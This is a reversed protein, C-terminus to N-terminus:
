SATATCAVSFSYANNPVRVILTDYNAATKVCGLIEASIDDGGSVLKYKATWAAATVSGLTKGTAAKVQVAIVSNGSAYYKSATSDYRAGKLDFETYTTGTLGVEIENGSHSVYGTLDSIALASGHVANASVECVLIALDDSVAAGLGDINIAVVGQQNNDDTTYNGDVDQLIGTGLGKNILQIDSEGELKAVDVPSTNDIGRKGMMVLYQTTDNKYLTVDDNWPVSIIWDEWVDFEYDVGELKMRLKESKESAAEVEARFASLEEMTMHALYHMGDWRKVGNKRLIKVAKRLTTRFNTDYTLIARSSIFAKGKIINKKQVAIEQLTYRISNLTDDFHFQLDEKSYIAKDGYNHVTKTFTALAIKTPRPAIFEAREQIDEPKVKPRILRRSTFTRHGRPVSSHHAFKDWYEETKVFLELGQKVDAIHEDTLEAYNVAKENATAM